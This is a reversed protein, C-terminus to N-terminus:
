DADFSRDLGYLVEAHESRQLGDEDRVWLTLSQGGHADLVPALLRDGIKMGELYIADVREVAYCFVVKNFGQIWRAPGQVVQTWPWRSLHERAMACLGGDLEVSRVFGTEGVVRAALAAGYGAGGGLELLRDGSALALLQYNVAYAHIASLTSSGGGPLPIAVDRWAATLHEEDVYRERPEVVLGRRLRPDLERRAFLRHVVRRRERVLLNVAEPDRRADETSQGTLRRWLCYDRIHPLQAAAGMLEVQEATSRRFYDAAAGQYDFRRHVERVLPGFLERTLRTRTRYDLSHSPDVWGANFSPESYDWWRPRHVRTGFREGYTALEHDIPSGPYFRYSDVSLFGTTRAHRGFLNECWAASRALSEPTEGPHGAIVNAGWPFGLGNAGDALREFRHLYDEEDGVGGKQIIRLMAPDGSELGFGVGFGAAHFLALDDTELVDARGLAWYKAVPLRLRALRELMERRWARRLGFVPDTLFVTWDTLDLWEHLRTLEQQARAPSYARWGRAGKAGEMCFACQFPCGRSLALTVQGGMRRARPRYRDLLTWDMTPLSDLEQVPDPGLVRDLEEGRAVADLIRVLPREGEGVVVYDFPSQDGVFDQPRASPHYGGVVLIAGPNRRRIEVALYFSKLYDFSSYCSVGVVDFDPDFVRQPAPDDLQQEYDLDVISVRAETHAQVYSGLSVLHTDGFNGDAEFPYGTAVLLVRM